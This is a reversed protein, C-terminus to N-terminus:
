CLLAESTDYVSAGLLCTRTKTKEIDNRLASDDVLGKGALHRILLVNQVLCRVDICDDTSGEVEAKLEEEVAERERGEKRRRNAEGGEEAERRGGIASHQVSLYSRSSWKFNIKDAIGCLGAHCVHGHKPRPGDRVLRMALLFISM